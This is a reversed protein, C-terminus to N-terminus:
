TKREEDISEDERPVVPQIEPYCPRKHYATSLKLYKVKHIGSFVLQSSRQNIYLDKNHCCMLMEVAAGHKMLLM